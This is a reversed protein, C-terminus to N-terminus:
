AHRGRNNPQFHAASSGRAPRAREPAFRLSKMEHVVATGLRVVPLEGDQVITELTNRGVQLAAADM